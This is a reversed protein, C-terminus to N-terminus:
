AIPLQQVKWGAPGVSWYELAKRTPISHHYHTFYTTVHQHGMNLQLAPLDHFASLHYSGYSHRLRDQDSKDIQAVGAERFVLGRKHTWDPPVVHGAARLGQPLTEIWVALVDEIRVNRLTRTKSKPACIRINRMELSVDGWELRRLEEPRIGAFALFAIPVQCTRCDLANMRHYEGPARYDRCSEFLSRLEDPTVIHVARSRGEKAEIKSVPNTAAWEAKIADNIVSDLQKRGRNFASATKVGALATEIDRKSLDCVLKDLIEDPMWKRVSVFDKITLPSRGKSKRKAISWEWAERLTVSADQDNRRAIWEQAVQLITTNYKALLKDVKIAQSALDADIHVAREGHQKMQRKRKTAEIKALRESKFVLKRRSGTESHKAPVDLQWGAPTKKPTFAVARPM